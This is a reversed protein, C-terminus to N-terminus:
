VETSENIYCKNIDCRERKCLIKHIIQMDKNKLKFSSLSLNNIDMDFIENNFTCSSNCKLKQCLWKIISM